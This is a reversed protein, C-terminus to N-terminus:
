RKKKILKKCMSLFFYLFLISFLMYVGKKGLHKNLIVVIDSLTNEYDITTVASLDKYIFIFLVVIGICGLLDFGWHSYDYKKNM